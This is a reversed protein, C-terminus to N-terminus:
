ADEDDENDEFIDTDTWYFDRKSFDYEVIYCDTNTNSRYRKVIKEAKDKTITLGIIYDDFYVSNTYIAYVTSIYPLEQGVIASACMRGKNDKM